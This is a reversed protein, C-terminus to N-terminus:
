DGRLSSLIPTRSAERVAFLSSLMGVAFVTALLLGGNIWPTDAGTSLLHPLMALLACATGSTLGWFLLMANEALVMVSLSQTRFGVARLLALESRREVVNRMMVTALGLTGLLLGLGGLSQFTSLYTNQVVLFAAIRDSVREADFGYPTLSGELLSTLRNIEENTFHGASNVRAENAGILFYRFGTQQPFLKRFNSDSMLLVGQLVSGDLMGSVVLETESDPIPITDGPAKHLSFMLTNMDGLVPVRGDDRPANLLNWYDAKRQDVFRFGGREMLADPVGLITPLTTQYLNLCSANEGPRVRFSFVQMEELLKGDGSDAEPAIGLEM